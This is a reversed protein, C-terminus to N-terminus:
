GDKQHGAPEKIEWGGGLAKYLAVRQGALRAQSEIVALRRVLLSREASLV